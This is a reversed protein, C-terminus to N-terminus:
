SCSSCWWCGPPVTMLVGAIMVMQKMAVVRVARAIKWPRAVRILKKAAAASAPMTVPRRMQPPNKLQARDRFGHM